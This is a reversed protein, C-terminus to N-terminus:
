GSAVKGLKERRSEEWINPMLEFSRSILSSSDDNKRRGDTRGKATDHAISLINMILQCTALDASTGASPGMMNPAKIKDRELGLHIRENV